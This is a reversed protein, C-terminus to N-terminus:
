AWKKESSNLKMRLLTINADGVSVRSFYLAFGLGLLISISSKRFCTSRPLNALLM